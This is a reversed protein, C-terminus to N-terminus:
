RSRPALSSIPLAEFRRTSLDASSNAAHPSRAARVTRRSALDWLWSKTAASRARIASATSFSRGVALRRAELTRARSASGADSCPSASVSAAAMAVSHSCIKALVAAAELFLPGLFVCSNPVTDLPLLDRSSPPASTRYSHQLHRCNSGYMGLPENETAAFRSVCVSRGTEAAACRATTSAMAAAPLAAPSSAIAACTPCATARSGSPELSRSVPATKAFVMMAPDAESAAASATARGMSTHASRRWRSAATSSISAMADFVGGRVDLTEDATNACSTRMPWFATDHMAAPVPATRAGRNPTMHLMSSTHACQTHEMASIAPLGAYRSTVSSTHACSRDSVPTQVAAPPM